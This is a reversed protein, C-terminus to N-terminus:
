WCATRSVSANRGEGDAKAFGRRRCSASGSEAGRRKGGAHGARWRAPPALLEAKAMQRRWAAYAARRLSQNPKSSAAVTSDRGESSGFVVVAVAPMPDREESSGVVVVADRAPSLEPTPAFWPISMPYVVVPPSRSRFSEEPVGRPRRRRLIPMRGRQLASASPQSAGAGHTHRETVYMGVFEELDRSCTFISKGPAKSMTGATVVAANRLRAAHQERTETNLQAM